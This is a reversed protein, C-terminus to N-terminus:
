RHDHCSPGVWEATIELSRDEKAWITTLLDIHPPIDEKGELWKMVRDENAGCARALYRATLGLENLRRSLERHDIRDYVYRRSM